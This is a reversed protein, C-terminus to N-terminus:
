QRADKGAVVQAHNLVAVLAVGGLINGILTPLVYIAYSAWSAAGSTVNYLVEVSGAIVHTFGGLGVVYTIVVIVGLRASQAVPFLWVMLAILWGAFVGRIMVTLFDGVMAERGIAAFVQKVEPQFVATHSLGYAIILAGILNSILVVSWVRLVAVLTAINRRALLPLVVTLTNETFLQQRGLVVIIYGVSYGLKCVLPRWQADPLHSRILGETVLSFGM